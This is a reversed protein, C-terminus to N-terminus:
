KLFYWGNFCWIFKSMITVNHLIVGDERLLKRQLKLRNKMFDVLLIILIIMIGLVIVALITPPDIYILKVKGAFEEKSHLAL